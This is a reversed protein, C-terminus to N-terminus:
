PSGDGVTFTLFPPLQFYSFGDVHTARVLNNMTKQVCTYICLALENIAVTVVRGDERPRNMHQNRDAGCTRLWLSCLPLWLPQQGRRRKVKYEDGIKLQPWAYLWASCM